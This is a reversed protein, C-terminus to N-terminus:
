RLALGGQKTTAQGGRVTHRSRFEVPPRANQLGQAQGPRCVQLTYPCTPMHVCACADRGTIAWTVATAKGGGERKTDKGQGARGVGCPDGAAAGGGWAPLGSYMLLAHAGVHAARGQQQGWEGRLRAGHPPLAPPLWQPEASPWSAPAPAPRASQRSWSQTQWTSATWGSTRMRLAPIPTQTLTLAVRTRLHPFLCSSCGSARPAFLTCPCKSTCSMCPLTYCFRPKAEVWAGAWAHLCRVSPLSWPWAWAQVRVWAWEHARARARLYRVSLTLVSGIPSSLRITAVFSVSMARTGSM